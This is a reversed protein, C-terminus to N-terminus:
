SAGRDTKFEGSGIKRLGVANGNSDALSLDEIRDGLGITRGYVNRFSWVLSAQTLTGAVTLTEPAADRSVKFHVSLDQAQTIAFSSLLGAIIAVLNFVASRIFQGTHRM